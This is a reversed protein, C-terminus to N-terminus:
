GGAGARRLVLQQEGRPGAISGRIEDGALTGSFTPPEGGQGRAQGTAGARAQGGRAQGARPPGDGGRMGAMLSRLDLPFSVTGGEVTVRGVVVAEDGTGVKAMVSDGEQIFTFTSTMTGRPTERELEWAGLLASVDGGSTQGASQGFVPTAVVALAALAGLVRSKMARGM